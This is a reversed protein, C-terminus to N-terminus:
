YFANKLMLYAFSAPLIFLLSDIRDLIGGHGPLLSGSDKVGACRKILSEYLDGYIGFVSVIISIILWDTFALLPALKPLWLGLGITFITGGVAGEWSKKPSLREFLRHRGFLMGTVYAGTDNIWILSLLGILISHTYESNNEVPFALFSSLSLPLTIYVFAFILVTISAFQYDKNLYIEAIFVLLLVPIILSIFNLEVFRAAFLFIIIFILGSGILGTFKSVKINVKAAIQFFENLSLMTILLFIVAFFFRGAIISGAILAIYAIGTFLRQFFNNM